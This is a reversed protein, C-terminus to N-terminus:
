LAVDVVVCPASKKLSYLRKLPRRLSRGSAGLGCFLFAARAGAYVLGRAAKQSFLKAVVGRMCQAASLCPLSAVVGAFNGQGRAAAFIASFAGLGKGCFLVGSLPFSSSFYRAWAVLAKAEKKGFSFFPSEKFRELAKPILVAPLRKERSARELFKQELFFGLDEISIPRGEPSLILIREVNPEQEKPLFLWASIARRAYIIKVRKSTYLSRLRRLEARGKENNSKCGAASLERFLAKKVAPYIRVGAALSFLAAGLAILALFFSAFYFFAM